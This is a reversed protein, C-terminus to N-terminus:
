QNNSRNHRVDALGLGADPVEFVSEGPGVDIEDEGVAPTDSAQPLVARTVPLPPATPRVRGQRSPLLARSHAPLRRDVVANPLSAAEWFAVLLDMIRSRSEMALAAWRSAYTPPTNELVAAQEYNAAHKHWPATPEVFLNWGFAGSTHLETLSASCLHSDLDIAALNADRQESPQRLIRGLGPFKAALIERWNHRYPLAHIRCFGLNLPKRDDLLWDLATQCFAAYYLTAARMDSLGSRICVARVFAVDESLEVAPEPETAPQAGPAQHWRLYYEPTIGPAKTLLQSVFAPRMVWHGDKAHMAVESLRSNIAAMQPGDVPVAPAVWM